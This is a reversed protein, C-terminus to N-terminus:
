RREEHRAGGLISRRDYVQDYVLVYWSETAEKEEEEDEDAGGTSYYM